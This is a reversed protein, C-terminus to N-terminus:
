KLEIKKIIKSDNSFDTFVFIYERPTLRTLDVQALDRNLPIQLITKKNDSSLITLLAESNERKIVLNRQTIIVPTDVGFDSTKYHYAETNIILEIKLKEGVLNINYVHYNLEPTINLVVDYETNSPVLYTDSANLNKPLNEFQLPVKDDSLNEIPITITYNNGVIGEIQFTNKDIGIEQHDGYLYISTSNSDIKLVRILQWNSDYEFSKIWDVHSLDAKSSASPAYGYKTKVYDTNPSIITDSSDSIASPLLFTDPKFNLPTYHRIRKKYGTPFYEVWEGMKQGYSNEKNYDQSFVFSISSLFISISIFLKM